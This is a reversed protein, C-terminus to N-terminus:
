VFPLSEGDTQCEREKVATKISGEKHEGNMSTCMKFYTESLFFQAHM